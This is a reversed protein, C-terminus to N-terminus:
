KAEDKRGRHAATDHEVRKETAVAILVHGKAAEAIEAADPDQSRAAEDIIADAGRFLSKRIGSWIEQVKPIHRAQLVDCLLEMWAREEENLGPFTRSAGQWYAARFVDTLDERNSEHAARMLRELALGSPTRDKEYNAVARISLGLRTAFAQQSENLHGRLAKVAETTNV